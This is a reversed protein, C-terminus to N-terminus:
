HTATTTTTRNRLWTIFGIGVWAVGPITAIVAALGALILSVPAIAPPWLGVVLLYLALVAAAIARILM